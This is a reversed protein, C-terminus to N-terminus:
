ARGLLIAVRWFLFIAGIKLKSYDVGEYMPVVAVHSVEDFCCAPPGDIMSVGLYEDDGKVVLHPFYKENCLCPPCKRKGSFFTVSVFITFDLGM